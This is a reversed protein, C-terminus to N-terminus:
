VSTFAQNENDGLSVHASEGLKVPKVCKEPHSVQHIKKFAHLKVSLDQKDILQIDTFSTFAIKM